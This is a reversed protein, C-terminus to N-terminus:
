CSDCLKICISTDENLRNVNTSFPVNVQCKRWRGGIKFHTDFRIPRRITPVLDELLVERRKKGVLLTRNHYLRFVFEEDLGVIFGFTKEDDFDRDCVFRLKHDPLIVHSYRIARFIDRNLSLFDETVYSITRACTLGVRDRAMALAVLQNYGPVLGKRLRPGPRRGTAKKPAFIRLNM